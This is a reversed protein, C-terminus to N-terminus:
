KTTVSRLAEIKKKMNYEDPLEDWKYARPKDGSPFSPHCYTSTPVYDEILTDITSNVIKKVEELDEVEKGEADKVRDHKIKAFTFEDQEEQARMKIEVGAFGPGEAFTSLSLEVSSDPELPIWPTVPRLPAESYLHIGVWAKNWVDRSANVYEQQSSKAEVM